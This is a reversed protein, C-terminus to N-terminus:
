PPEDLLLLEPEQLVEGDRRVARMWEAAMGMVTDVDGPEVAYHPLCIRLIPELDGALPPMEGLRLQGALIETLEGATLQM